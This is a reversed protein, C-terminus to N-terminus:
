VCALLGGDVFIVQGSVFSSANSSLFVAAGILEDPRGWRAAPTRRKIWSDFEPDDALKQTLETIFYGPGIGNVQINYQAWETAMARTLMQLGGKAAAYAATTPRALQSMLSCINVIKGSKQQIMSRAVERAVLFPATLNTSLVANWDEVDLEVLAGRRTIGANNILVNISGARELIRGVGARVQGPESVDFACQWVALGDDALSKEARDLKEQNRGNLVVTAGAQALGRAITFGLGGGSGTVLATQGQLDFLSM